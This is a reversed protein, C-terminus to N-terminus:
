RRHIRLRGLVVARPDAMDRERRSISQPELMMTFFLGPGRQNVYGLHDVFSM